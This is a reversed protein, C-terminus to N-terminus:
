LAYVHSPAYSQVRQIEYEDDGSVWGNPRIRNGAVLTTGNEFFAEHTTAIKECVEIRAVEGHSLPLIFGTPTSSSAWTVTPKGTDGYTASKTVYTVAVGWISLLDAADTAMAM